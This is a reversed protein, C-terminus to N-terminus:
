AVSPIVHFSFIVRVCTVTIDLTLSEGSPSAAVPQTLVRFALASHLFFPLVVVVLWLLNESIFTAAVAISCSGAQVLYVESTLRQLLLIERGMM